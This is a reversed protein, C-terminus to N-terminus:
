EDLYDKLKVAYNQLKECLVILENLQMSLLRCATDHLEHETILDKLARVRQNMKEADGDFYDRAM